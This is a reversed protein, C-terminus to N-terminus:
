ELRHARLAPPHCMVKFGGVCSKKLVDFQLTLVVRPVNWRRDECIIIIFDALDSNDNQLTDLKTRFAKGASINAM